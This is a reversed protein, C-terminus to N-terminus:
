KTIFLMIVAVNFSFLIGDFIYQWRKGTYDGTTLLAFFVFAFAINIWIM